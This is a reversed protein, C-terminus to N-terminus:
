RPSDFAERLEDPDLQCGSPCDYEEPVEEAGTGGTWGVTVWGVAASSGCRPCQEWTVRESM